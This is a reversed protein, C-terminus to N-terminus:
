SGDVEQCPAFGKKANEQDDFRQELYHDLCYKNCFDIRQGEHLVRVTTSGFRIQIMLKSGAPVGLTIWDQDLGEDYIRECHDCRFLEVLSM